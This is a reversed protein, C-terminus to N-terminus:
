LLLTAWLLMFINDKLSLFEVIVIDIIVYMGQIRMKIWKSICPQKWICTQFNTKCNKCFSGTIHRSFHAALSFGGPFRKSPRRCASSSKKGFILLSSTMPQVDGIQEQSASLDNEARRLILVCRLDVIHSSRNDANFNIFTWKLSHQAISAESMTFRNTVFCECLINQLEM